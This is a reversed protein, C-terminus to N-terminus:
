ESDEVAEGDQGHEDDWEKDSGYLVGVDEGDSGTRQKRQKEYRKWAASGKIEGRLEEILRKDEDDYPQDAYDQVRWARHMDKAKAENRHTTEHEVLRKWEYDKVGPNLENFVDAVIQRQDKEVLGRASIFDM